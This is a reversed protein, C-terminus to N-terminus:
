KDVDKAKMEHEMQKEMQHATITTEMNKTKWERSRFCYNGKHIGKVRLLVATLM